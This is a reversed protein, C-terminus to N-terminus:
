KATDVNISALGNVFVSLATFLKVENQGIQGTDSFYIVLIGLVGTTIYIALRLKPPLNVKM